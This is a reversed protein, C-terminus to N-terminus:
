RLRRYRPARVLKRIRYYVRRGYRSISWRAVLLATLVSALLGIFLYPQATVEYTAKGSNGYSDGASVKLTWTGVHALDFITSSYSSRWEDITPDYTSQLQSVSSGATVVVTVTGATLPSGDPYTVKSMISVQGFPIQINTGNLQSTISLTANTVSFFDSYSDTANGKNGYGDDFTMSPIEFRYKASPTANALIKSEALWVGNASGVLTLNAFGATAQNQLLVVPQTNSAVSTVPSGDPYQIVISLAANQTRQYTSNPEQDIKLSLLAQTVTFKAESVFDEQANDFVGTGDVFATFVDTIANKPIRWTQNFNGYTSSALTAQNVINGSPDRITLRLGTSPFIGGGLINVTETRQYVPQATGWVGFHATAQANDVTSSTSLSLLYTGLTANPNLPYAVDPPVLGGTVPLFSTGVYRTKTDVPRKLWVYYMQGPSLGSGTLTVQKDRITYLPQDTGLTPAGRASNPTSLIVITFMMLALITLHKM